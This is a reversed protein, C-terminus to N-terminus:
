RFAAGVTRLALGAVLAATILSGGTMLTIVCGGLEGGVIAPLHTDDGGFYLGVAEAFACSAVGALSQLVPLVQSLAVAAGGVVLSFGIQRASACVCCGIAFIILVALLMGMRGGHETLQWGLWGPVIMNLACVVLWGLCLRKASRTESPGTPLDVADGQPSQYPNLDTPVHANRVTTTEEV